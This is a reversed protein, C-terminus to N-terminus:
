SYFWLAGREFDPHSERHGSWRLLGTGNVPFPTTALSVAGKKRQAGRSPRRAEYARGRCNSETWLSEPLRWTENRDSTTWRGLDAVKFRQSSPEFGEKPVSIAVCITERPADDPSSVQRVCLVRLTRDERGAGHTRIGHLSEHPCLRTKRFDEPKETRHGHKAESVRVLRKSTALQGATGPVRLVHTRSGDAGGFRM